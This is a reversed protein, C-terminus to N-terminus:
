LSAFEQQDSITARSGVGSSNASVLTMLAVPAPSGDPSTVAMQLKRADPGLFLDDTAVGGGIVAAAPLSFGDCFSGFFDKPNNRDECKQFFYFYFYFFLGEIVEDGCSEM